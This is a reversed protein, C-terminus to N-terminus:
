DYDKTYHRVAMKFTKLVLILLCTNCRLYFKHGNKKM